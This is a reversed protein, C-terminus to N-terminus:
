NGKGTKDKKKMHDQSWRSRCEKGVRREESRTMNAIYEATFKDKTGFSQLVEANGIFTQWNDSYTSKLQSLNQLFIWLSAGYGALLSYARIIPEMRGLNAFEDLLFLVNHDPQGPTRTVTLLSCSIMLRLWRRYSDLRDPPLVLFMSLQGAKLDTLNFSSESLVREMRPSDLFHTHSQASSIVGSRERNSKQLLRAAARRTLG